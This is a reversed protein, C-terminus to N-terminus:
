GEARSIDDPPIRDMARVRGILQLDGLTGTTNLASNLRARRSGYKSETAITKFLTKM